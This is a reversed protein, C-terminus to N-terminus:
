GTKKKGRQRRQRRKQLAQLSSEASERTSIQGSRQLMAGAERHIDARLAVPALVECESGWSLIWRRVEILSRLSLGLTVSGDDHNELKQTAHWIKERIYKAASAQFKLRIEQEPLHSESVVKFTGSFFDGVLFDAPIQYTEGTQTLERIRGPVFMRTAKRKHCYALLYFDGNVCALHYPDITRISEADRSATWYLVRLQRHHLVADALQRFIDIDQL